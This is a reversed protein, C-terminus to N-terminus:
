VKCVRLEVGYEGVCFKHSHFMEKLYYVEAKEFCSANAILCKAVEEYYAAVIPDACIEDLSEGVWLRDLYCDAVVALIFM